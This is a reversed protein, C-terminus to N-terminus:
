KCLQKSVISHRQLHEVLRSFLFLISCFLLFYLISIKISVAGAVAGAILNRYISGSRPDVILVEDPLVNGEGLDLLKNIIFYILLIWCFKYIEYKKFKSIFIELPTIVWDSWLYQIFFLIAEM